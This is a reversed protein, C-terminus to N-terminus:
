GILALKGANLRAPSICWERYDNGAQTMECNDLEEQTLHKAEIAIIGRDRADRGLRPKDSVFICESNDWFGRRVISEADTRNTEHYLFKMM